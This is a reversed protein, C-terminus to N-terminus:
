DYLLEQLIPARLPSRLKRLARYELQRVKEKNMKVISGIEELSKARGDDLGYRKILIDKEVDELTGLVDLLIEKNTIVKMIEEPSNEHNDPLIDTLDTDNDENITYDLSLPSVTLNNLNNYTQIDVGVQNAIEEDTLSDDTKLKNIKNITNIMHTPIRITRSYDNISQSIAQKIWYTAYTAFKFGKSPDFTHTAKELGLNGEQILDLLSQTTNATYKKAIAVVLRLNSEIIRNKAEQDGAVMKLTLENEEEPTLLPISGISKMYLNLTTTNVNPKFEQAIM